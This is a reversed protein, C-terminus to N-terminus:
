KKIIMVEDWGGLIGAKYFSYQGQITLNSVMTISQDPNEIVPYSGAPKERLSWYCRYGEGDYEGIMAFTDFTTVDKGANPHQLQVQNAEPTFPPMTYGDKDMQEITLEQGTLAFYLNQLQHLYKIKKGYEYESYIVLIYGEEFETIQIENLETIQIENLRAGSLEFGCKKLIEPTLEIPDIENNVAYIDDLQVSIPRVATVERITGLHLVHNHLRLEKTPIMFHNKFCFGAM